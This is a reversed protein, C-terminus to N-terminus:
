LPITNILECVPQFCGFVKFGSLILPKIYLCIEICLLITPVILLIAFLFFIAEKRINVNDHLIKQLLYQYKEDNLKSPQLSLM